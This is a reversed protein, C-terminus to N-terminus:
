APRREEEGGSNGTTREGTNGSRGTKSVEGPVRYQDRNRAASFIVAIVDYEFRTKPLERYPFEGERDKERGRERERM